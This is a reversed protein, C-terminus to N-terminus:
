LDLTRSVPIKEFTDFDNKEILLDILLLISFLCEFNLQKIEIKEKRRRKPLCELRRAHGFFRDKPSSFAYAHLCFASLLRMNLLM